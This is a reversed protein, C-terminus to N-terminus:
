AKYIDNKSKEQLEAQLNSEKIERFFITEFNGTFFNM